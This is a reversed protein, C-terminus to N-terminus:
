SGKGFCKSNLGASCKQNRIQPKEEILSVQESMTNQTQFM